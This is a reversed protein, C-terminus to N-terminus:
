PFWFDRMYDSNHGAYPKKQWKALSITDLGRKMDSKEPSVGTPSFMRNINPSEHKSYLQSGYFKLIQPQWTAFYTNFFITRELRSNTKIM